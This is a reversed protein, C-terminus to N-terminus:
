GFRCNMHEMQVMALFYVVRVQPSVMLFVLHVLFLHSYAIQIRHGCFNPTHLTSAVGMCPQSQSM